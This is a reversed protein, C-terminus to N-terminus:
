AALRKPCLLKVGEVVAMLALMFTGFATISYIYYLPIMLDQTSEGSVKAEEIAILFRYTMGSGLLTYGFIYFAELAVKTKESMKETFLDVIIQSKAVTYPLTFLVMFLLGYKILEVGGLFTFDVSGDTAKFLARTIVDALTVFMMSVIFFGSLVHMYFAIREILKFAAKM